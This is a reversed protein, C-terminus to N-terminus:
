KALCAAIQPKCVSLPDKNSLICDLAASSEVAVAPDAEHMCDTVAKLVEGKSFAGQICTLTQKCTAQGQGVWQDALHEGSEDRCNSTRPDAPYYSGLLMCMEDTTRPGQYIDHSESSSYDCQYDLWSGAKVTLGPEFSKVPVNAWDKNVYFPDQGVVGASYGVGRKHMHSQVNSITIDEHVPCRM